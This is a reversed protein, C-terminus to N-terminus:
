KTLRAVWIGCGPRLERMIVAKSLNEKISKLMLLSEKDLEESYPLLKNYVNEKQPKFGLVAARQLLETTEDQDM